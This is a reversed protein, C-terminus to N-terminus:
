VLLTARTYTGANDTLIYTKEKNNTNANENQLITLNNKKHQTSTKLM